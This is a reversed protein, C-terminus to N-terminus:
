LSPLPGFVVMVNHHPLLAAAARECEQAWEEQWEYDTQSGLATDVAMADARARAGIALARIEHALLHRLMPEIM